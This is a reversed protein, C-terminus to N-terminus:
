DKEAALDESLKSKPTPGRVEKLAKEMDPVYFVIPMFSDLESPDVGILAGDKASCIDELTQARIRRKNYLIVSKINVKPM